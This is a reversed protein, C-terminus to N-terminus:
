RVIQKLTKSLVRVLLLLNSNHCILSKSGEGTLTVLGPWKNCQAFAFAHDAKCMSQAAGCKRHLTTACHCISLTTRQTVARLRVDTNNVHKKATTCSIARKRKCWVREKVCTFTSKHPLILRVMLKIFRYSFVKINVKLSSLCV